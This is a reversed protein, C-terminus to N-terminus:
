LVVQLLGHQLDFVLSSSMQKVRWDLWCLEQDGGVSAHSKDMLEPM